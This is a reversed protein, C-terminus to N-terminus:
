ANAKKELDSVRKTLDGILELLDAEDLEIEARDVEYAELIQNGSTYDYGIQRTKTEKEHAKHNSPLLIKFSPEEVFGNGTLMLGSITTEVFGSDLPVRSKIRFRKM